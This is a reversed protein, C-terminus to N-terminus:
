EIWDEGLDCPVSRGHDRLIHHDDTGRMAAAASRAALFVGFSVDAREVSAGAFLQPDEVRNRLRSLKAVIGPFFVRPGVRAMGTDPPLERNIFLQANEVQGDFIGGTVVHAHM